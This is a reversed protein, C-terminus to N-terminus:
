NCCSPMLHPSKQLNRWSILSWLQQDLRSWFNLNSVVIDDTSWVAAESRCIPFYFWKRLPFRLLHTLIEALETWSYKQQNRKHTHTNQPFMDPAGKERETNELPPTPRGTGGAIPLAAREWAQFCVGATCESMLDTYHHRGLYVSRKLEGIKSCFKLIPSLFCPFILKHENGLSWIGINTYWLYACLKRQTQNCPSVACEIFQNCPSLQLPVSLTVNLCFM